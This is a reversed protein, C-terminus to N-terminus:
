ISVETRTSGVHHVIYATQSVPGLEEDSKCYLFRSMEESYICVDVKYVNAFAVIELNDGYAGGKAMINLYQQFTSEVEQPTPVKTDRLHSIAGPNKRKPIRSSRRLGGGSHVAVFGKFRTAHTRMYEITAARLTM